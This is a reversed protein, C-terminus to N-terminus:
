TRHGNEEEFKALRLLQTANSLPKWDAEGPARYIWGPIGDEAPEIQYREGRLFSLAARIEHPSIPQPQRHDTDNTTM